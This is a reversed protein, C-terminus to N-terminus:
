SSSRRWLIPLFRARSVDAGNSSLISRCLSCVLRRVYCGGLGIVYNFWNRVPDFALGGSLQYVLVYALPAIALRVPRTHQRQALFALLLLLGDLAGLQLWPRLTTPDQAPPLAFPLPWALSM